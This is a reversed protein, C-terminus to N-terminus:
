GTLKREATRLVTRFGFAVAPAFVRTSAGSCVPTRVEFTSSWTVETGDATERLQMSGSEHRLPPISSRILYDMRVPREYGVIEETLKLAATTVERITGVGDIGARTVEARLVGPVQRYNAADTIWDFVQEIPAAITRRVTVTRM